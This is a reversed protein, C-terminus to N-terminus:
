HGRNKCYGCEFVFTEKTQGFYNLSRQVGCTPCYKRLDDTIYQALTEVAKRTEPNRIDQKSDTDAGLEYGITDRFSGITLKNGQADKGSSPITYIRLKDNFFNSTAYLTRWHATVFDYHDPKTLDILTKLQTKKSRIYWHSFDGNGAKWLDREKALGMNVPKVAKYHSEILADGNRAAM